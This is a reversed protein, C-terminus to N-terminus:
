CTVDFRDANMTKTWASAFAAKFATNDKEFGKAIASYEPDMKIAIDTPTMYVPPNLDRSKYEVKGNSKVYYFFSTNLLVKFYNNTLVSPDTSWSGSYGLTKQEKPSRPTAQLAVFEAATLGKILQTDRVFAIVNDIDTEDYTMPELDASGDGSTADSRGACFSLPPSGADELAVNAALVILDAFSIAFQSKITALYNAVATLGKNTPWDKEPSLLIRAGNCGGRYDTKRFTGACNKALAVFLAGNYPQGAIFDPKLISRLETTLATTLKAEVPSFDALPPMAAPLPFQWPQPPPVPANMGAKCRTVPGMDRTTLKYWTKGFYEELLSLDNAYEHVIQLYDADHLLAVDATLMFITRETSPRDAPFWQPNGGPGTTLTWNYELLNLFYDNGWTTPEDTWSGEFGSTVTNPGKGKMSGSGCPPTPCAGHAKGFAHGGGVLAVTEMDDMGMRGFTDRILPYTNTPDPVGLEGAPNVYILGVTTAGLPAKCLGNVPCPAVAEQEASPGLYISDYGSVDDVRGACFDLKPFGMSEIATNGALVILDAWTIAPFKNKVPVLLQRAKDLNANDPWSLEPDFRIRGGDCGGRGDSKRYSGSCHWALRIMFPAYNGDGGLDPFDAPWFSKSNLFVKKLEARVKDYDLTGTLERHSADDALLAAAEASGPVLHAADNALLSRAHPCGAAAAARLNSEQSEHAIAGQLLPALAALIAGKMQVM